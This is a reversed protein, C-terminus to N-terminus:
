CHGSLSLGSPSVTIYMKAERPLKKGLESLTVPQGGAQLLLRNLLAVLDLWLEADWESVRSPEPAPGAAASRVGQQYDEWRLEELSSGAHAPMATIAVYSVSGAGPAGGLGEVGATMQYTTAWTGIAQPGWQMNSSPAAEAVMSSPSPAAGAVVHSSPATENAALSSFPSSTPAHVISSVAKASFPAPGAGPAAGSAATVSLFM